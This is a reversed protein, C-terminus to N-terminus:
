ENANGQRTKIDEVIAELEQVNVDGADISAGDLANQVVISVDLWKSIVETNKYIITDATVPEDTEKNFWGRFLSTWSPCTPVDGVATGGKVEKSYHLRGEVDYFNVVYYPDDELVREKIVQLRSDIYKDTAELVFHDNVTKKGWRLDNMIRSKNILVNGERLLPLVESIAADRYKNFVDQLSATVEPHKFMDGSQYFSKTAEISTNEAYLFDLASMDYNWVPGAYLKPDVSDSDKYFLVKTLKSNSNAFLLDIFCQKTYSDIDLYDGISWGTDPNIGDPSLIAAELENFSAQIYEVERLTAYKPTLIKIVTGNKTKFWADTRTLEEESTVEVIFGGTIDEPSELNTVGYASKNDNLEFLIDKLDTGSNEKIKLPDCDNLALASGNLQPKNCLYYNGFYEGNFYLDVYEGKPSSMDMFEGVFDYVMQNKLLTNDHPNALLVWELSKENAALEKAVKLKIEYSKKETNPFDNAYAKIFDLEENEIPKLNEKSLSLFGDFEDGNTTAIKEASFESQLFLADLNESKLVNLTELPSGDATLTITLDGDLPIFDSSAYEKGNVSLGLSEDINDFQFSDVKAPLFLYKEGLDNKFVKIDQKNNQITVSAIADSFNYVKEYSDNTFFSGPLVKDIRLIIVLALASLILLITAIIIKVNRKM